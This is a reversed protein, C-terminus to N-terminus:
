RAHSEGQRSLEEVAKHKMFAGSKISSRLYMPTVFAVLMLYLLLMLPISVWPPLLWDTWSPVVMSIGWLTGIVASGYFCERYERDKRFVSRRASLYRCLSVGQPLSAAEEFEEWSPWSPFLSM